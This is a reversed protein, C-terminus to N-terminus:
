PHRGRVLVLRRSGVFPTVENRMRARGLYSGRTMIVFTVWREHPSGTVPSVEFTCVIVASGRTALQM